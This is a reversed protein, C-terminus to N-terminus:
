HPRTPPRRSRPPEAPRVSLGVSHFRTTVTHQDRAPRRPRLKIKPHSDRLLRRALLEGREEHEPVGLDRRQGRLDRVQHRGILPQRRLQGRELVKQTAVRGIGRQRRGLVVIGAACGRGRLRRAPSAPRFALSALLRTRRSRVQCPHVVRVLLQVAVRLAATLTAILQGIGGIQPHHIAILLVLDRPDTDLDGLVVLVLHATAAAPQVGRGARLTGAGTGDPVARVQLGEGDVQHHHLKM